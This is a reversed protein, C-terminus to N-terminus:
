QRTRLAELGPLRHGSLFACAAATGTCLLDVGKQADAPLARVFRGTDKGLVVSRLGPRNCLEVLSRSAGAGTDSKTDGLPGWWLLQQRAGLAQCFRESSEPGVDVVRLRPTLSRAPVVRPEPDGEWVTRLDTPLILEIELDRARALLSRARAGLEPEPSVEEPAKGAAVLLTVALQGGVCLTGLRPLWRDLLDIKDALRQGGLCWGLSERAASGLETLEALERRAAVGLARRPLLQPLRALSAQELHSSAFADGLYADANSALARAFREDNSREGPEAALDPLICIQAPRLQNMVSLVADGVCEDPLFAEVGLKESLQAALDDLSRIGTDAVAEAGFRTGILVRAEHELLQRLSSGEQDSAALVLPDVRFFVRRGRCDLDDLTLFPSTGVTPSVPM